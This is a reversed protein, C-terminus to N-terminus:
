KEYSSKLKHNPFFNDRIQKVIDKSIEEHTKMTIYPIQHKNLFDKLKSRVEKSEEETHVRGDVDFDHNRELLINFNNYANFQEIVLSEFSKFYNEPQYIATLILPCEMIAIDRKGKVRELWRNQEGLLFIQQSFVPHALAKGTHDKPTEWAYGKAVETILESKFGNVSLEYFLGSATVSKGVGPEGLLNIVLM